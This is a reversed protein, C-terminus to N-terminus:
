NKSNNLKNHSIESILEEYAVSVEDGEDSEMFSKVEIPLNNTGM